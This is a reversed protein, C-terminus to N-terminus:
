GHHSKVSSTGLTRALIENQETVNVASRELRVRRLKPATEFIPTRGADARDSAGGSYQNGAVVVVREHVEFLEM